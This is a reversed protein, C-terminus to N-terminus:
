GNLFHDFLRSYKIKFISSHFHLDYFKAIEPNWMKVEKNMNIQKKIYGFLYEGGNTPVSVGHGLELIIDAIESSKPGIYIANSGAYLSTFFKSPVCIGEFGDQLTVLHYNARYLLFQFEEDELYKTFIINQIKNKTVFDVLENKKSGTCSFVFYTSNDFQERKLEILLHMIESVSHVRGLNGAYFFVLKNELFPYKKYMNSNKLDQYSFAEKDDSMVHILEINERPVGIDILRRSMCTGISVVKSAHRFATSSLRQLIRELFTHRQIYGLKVLMEPHLDMVHIVYPIRRMRFIFTLVIHFLPPQTFVVAFDIRHLIAILAVKLSYFLQLLFKFKYALRPVDIFFFKSNAETDKRYGKRLVVIRCALGNAESVEYIAEMVPVVTNFTNFLYIKRKETHQRKRQLVM